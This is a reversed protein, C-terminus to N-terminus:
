VVPESPIKNINNPIRTTNVLITTEGSTSQPKYTTNDAVSIPRGTEELSKTSHISSSRLTEFKYDFKGDRLGERTVGNISIWTSKTARCRRTYKKGQLNSLIDLGSINFMVYGPDDWCPSVTAKKIIGTFIKNLNGNAGAEVVVPGAVQTNNIVSHDVKLSADFSSPQGRAKRVNFSQIFPTEVTISNGIIIRARVKILEITM